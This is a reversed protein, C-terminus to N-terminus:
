HWATEYASNREALFEVPENRVLNCGAVIGRGTLDNAVAQADQDFSPFM